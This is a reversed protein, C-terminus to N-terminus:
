VNNTQKQRKRRDNRAKTKRRKRDLEDKASAIIEDHVSKIPKSSKISSLLSEEEEESEESSEPLPAAKKTSSKGLIRDKLKSQAKEGGITKELKADGRFESGLGLREPRQMFLSDDVHEEQTGQILDDIFVQCQSLYESSLSFQDPM